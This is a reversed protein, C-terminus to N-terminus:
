GTWSLDSFGDPETTRGLTIGATGGAFLGAKVIEGLSTDLQPLTDLSVAWIRLLLIM